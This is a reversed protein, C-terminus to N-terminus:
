GTVLQAAAADAPATPAAPTAPDAPSTTLGSPETFARAASHGPAATFGRVVADLIQAPNTANEGVWAIHQDPRVVVIAPYAADTECGADLHLLPIGRGAAEAVLPAVADVVGIVTFWPGLLDYISKGAVRRHPLRNGAAVLPVYIAPTPAQDLSTPGYGYGLVLGSNYFEPAKLRWIEAGLRERAAEFELGTAMLLPNSLEVPLSAMNTAALAITQEEVPRREVAYSDLLVEPAWGALVAALKWGLNVADGVGTNFGHGGWPPNQHAADGVIFLRGTSYKDALLMRAQWPDTALIEVDVDIEGLGQGILSRILKVAHETGDVEATGTSIAWWTGALDLPGVVGPGEPNLVWYHISNPHPIADALKTSRFTINVNPRGGIAGVYSAGMATRVVSRPGDAGVVWVAAITRQEGVENEIVVQANDVGDTVEVARWGLLLEVGCKLALDARLVEEVIPQTVQQAPEPTLEPAADLGLCGDVHTIERGTVSQVFTVRQSWDRKLTAADRLREAIGWRRFHEMSRVSTTKARPRSHDVVVRPEVVTVAVGHLSLEEALSLGVPGGGIILVPVIEDPM